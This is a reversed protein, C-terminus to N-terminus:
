GQSGSIPPESPLEIDDTTEAQESDVSSQSVLEGIIEGHDVQVGVFREARGKKVAFLATLGLTVIFAYNLGTFLIVLGVNLWSPFQYEPHVAAYNSVYYSVFSGLLWQLTYYTTVLATTLLLFLSAKGDQSRRYKIAMVLGGAALLAYALNFFFDVSFIASFPIM